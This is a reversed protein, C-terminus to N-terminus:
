ATSLASSGSLHRCARRRIAHWPVPSVAAAGLVSCRRSEPLNAFEARTSTSRVLLSPEVTCPVADQIEVDGKIDLLFRCVVCIVGTLCDLVLTFDYTKPAASPADKCM